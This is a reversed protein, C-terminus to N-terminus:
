FLEASENLIIQIVFQTKPICTIKKIKIQGLLHNYDLESQLIVKRGLTTQFIVEVYNTIPPILLLLTNSMFFM